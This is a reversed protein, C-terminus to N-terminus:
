VARSSAAGDAARGIQSAKLLRELDRLMRRPDAGAPWRMMVNGLPDVLYVHARDNVPALPLSLGQPPTVTVMGEFPELLVPAVPHTDDAVFVRAVRAADRGLMLRIQRMLVLKETCAM